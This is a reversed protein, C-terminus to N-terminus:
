VGWKTCRCVKLLSIRDCFSRFKLIYEWKHADVCKIYHQYIYNEDIGAALVHALPFGSPSRPDSQDNSQILRCQGFSTISAIFHVPPVAQPGDWRKGMRVPPSSKHSVRIEVSVILQALRRKRHTM